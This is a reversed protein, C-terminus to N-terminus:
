RPRRHGAAPGSRDPSGASRANRRRSRRCARRGFQHLVLDVGHHHLADNADREAVLVQVVVVFQPMIRHQRHQGALQRRLPRVARRQGAFRRQVPQLQAAGLRRAIVLDAVIRCRDFAQEDIEEQVGM